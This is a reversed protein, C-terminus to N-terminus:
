FRSKSNRLRDASNHLKDELMNLMDTLGLLSLVSLGLIILLVIGVIHLWLVDSRLLLVAPIAFIIAIGIDQIRAGWSLSPRQSHHLTPSEPHTADQPFESM